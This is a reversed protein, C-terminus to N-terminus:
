QPVGETTSTTTPEAPTSPPTAASKPSQAVPARNTHGPQTTAKPKSSKAKPSNPIAKAKSTPPVAPFERQVQVAPASSTPVTVIILMQGTQRDSFGSNTPGSTVVFALAALM